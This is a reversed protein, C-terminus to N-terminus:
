SSKGPPNLAGDILKQARDGSWDMSGTVRWMEKGKADYFITTPLTDTGIETALMGEKDLYPKLNKFGAKQFYPGVARRGAVDQSVVITQFKDAERASLSDLTPMERVCPGCWTAWLNVLLPKGRFKSLTAPADDPGLFPKAPAEKGVHSVDVVGMKEEMAAVTGGQPEAPKPKDCGGLAALLLVPVILPRVSLELAM